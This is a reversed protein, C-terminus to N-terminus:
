ARRPTEAEAQVRIMGLSMLEGEPVARHEDHLVDAVEEVLVRQQWLGVRGGGGVGGGVGGGM